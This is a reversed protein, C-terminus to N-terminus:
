SNQCLILLTSPMGLWMCLGLICNFIKRFRSADLSRGSSSWRSVRCKSTCANLFVVTGSSFSAGRIAKCECIMASHSVNPMSCERISVFRIVNRVKYSLRQALVVKHNLFWRFLGCKRCSADLLGRPVCHMLSRAIWFEHCLVVVQLYQRTAFRVSDPRTVKHRILMTFLLAKNIKCGPIMELSLGKSVKCGSTRAFYSKANLLCRVVRLKPFTANMFAWLIRCIQSRTIVLYLGGSLCHQMSRANLFFQMGRDEWFNWLGRLVVIFPRANLTLQLVNDKPSIVNM